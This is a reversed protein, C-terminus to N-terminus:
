FLSNAYLKWLASESESELMVLLIRSKITNLHTIVSNRTVIGWLTTAAPMQSWM